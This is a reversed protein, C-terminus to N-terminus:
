KKKFTSLYIIVAGLGLIGLAFKTYRMAKAISGEEFYDNPDVLAGNVKYEFHLHPGTSSGKGFDNVGGGTLAILQGKKVKQGKFVKIEKLHCYRTRSNMEDHTIALTGGCANDRFASDDVVGDFPSYVKTGSPTKLDIGYHQSVEGTIPHKRKGYNSSVDWTGIPSVNKM